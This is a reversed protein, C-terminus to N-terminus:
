ATKAMEIVLIHSTSAPTVVVDEGVIELADREDLEVGNVSSSGEIQLLYAQRGPGVAYGVERGADLEVVSMRMDQHVTIPADGDPGAAILLWANKRAEWPFRHDGYAPEHGKEDPIIWIQLFRLTEDGRNYESHLVGTGASMYQVEGRTLTHENGMSDGHTLAGDVVYSLIEFDSHPHTGFGHGPAVLDDNLVRLVGFNVKDPDRYEAFSFHFRSRLWGLDSTGLGASDIKRLM